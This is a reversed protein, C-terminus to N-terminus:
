RGGGVTYEWEYDISNSGAFPGGTFAGSDMEAQVRCRIVGGPLSRPAWHQITGFNGGPVDTNPENGSWFNKGEVRGSTGFVDLTPANRFSTRSLCQARLTTCTGGNYPYRLEVPGPMPREGGKSFAPSVNIMGHAPCVFALTPGQNIYRCRMGWYEGSLVFSTKTITPDLMQDRHYMTLYMQRFAEAHTKNGRGLVSDMGARHGGESYGPKGQTEPHTLGGNAACYRLHALLDPEGDTAYGCPPSGVQMRRWNLNMFTDSHAADAPHPMPIEGTEWKDNAEDYRLAVAAGPAWLQNWYPGATKSEPVVVSDGVTGLRGDRDSDVVYGDATGLRVPFGYCSGIYIYDGRTRVSIGYKTNFADFVILRAQESITTSRPRDDPSAVLRQVLTPRSDTASFVFETGDITVGDGRALRTEHNSSISRTDVLDRQPGIAPRFSHWSVGEPGDYVRFTQDEPQPAVGGGNNNSNGSGNGNNSSTNSNGSAPPNEVVPDAPDPRVPEPARHLAAAEASSLLRWNGNDLKEAVYGGDPVNEDRLKAVFADIDDKQAPEADILRKCCTDGLEVLDHRYCYIAAALLDDTTPADFDMYCAAMTSPALSEWAIRSSAGSGFVTLGKSSAGQVVWDNNNHTVKRTKLKVSGRLNAADVFRKHLAAILADEDATTNPYKILERDAPPNARPTVSTGGNNSNGNGNGNGHAGNPTTPNGNSSSSSSSSSSNNGNANAPTRDTVAATHPDHVMLLECRAVHAAPDYSVTWHTNDGVNWILKVRDTRGGRGSDGTAPLTRAPEGFRATLTTALEDSPGQMRGIHDSSTGGTGAWMRLSFRTIKRDGVTSQGVSVQSYYGDQAHIRSTRDVGNRETLEYGLAEAGTAADTTDIVQGIVGVLLDSNWHAATITTGAAGRSANSSSSGGNGGNGTTSEPGPASCALTAPLAVWVLSAVLLTSTLIRM